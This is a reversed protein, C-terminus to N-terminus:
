SNQSGDCETQQFRTACALLARFARRKGGNL